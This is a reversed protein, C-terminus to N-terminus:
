ICTIPLLHFDYLSVNRGELMGDDRMVRVIRSFDEVVMKITLEHKEIRMQMWRAPDRVIKHEAVARNAVLGSEYRIFLCRHCNGCSLGKYDGSRKRLIKNVM